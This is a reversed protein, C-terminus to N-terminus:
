RITWAMVWARRRRSTMAATRSHRDSCPRRPDHPSSWPSSTTTRSRATGSSSAARTSSSRPTGIPAIRKGSAAYGARPSATRQRVDVTSSENGDRIMEINGWRVFASFATARCWRPAPGRSAAGIASPSASSPTRNAHPGDTTDCRVSTSVSAASAPKAHDRTLVEVSANGSRNSVALGTELSTVFFTSSSRAGPAIRAASWGSTRRLSRQTSPYSASQRKV